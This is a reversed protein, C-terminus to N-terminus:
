SYAANFSSTDQLDHLTRAACCDPLSRRPSAGQVSNPRTPVLHRSCTRSRITSVHFHTVPEACRLRTILQGTQLLVILTHRLPCFSALSVTSFQATDDATIPCDIGSPRPHISATRLDNKGRSETLTTGNTKTAEQGQTYCKVRCARKENPVASINDACTM